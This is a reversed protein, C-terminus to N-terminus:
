RLRTMESVMAALKGIMRKKIQDVNNRSIGFKAAVQEPKEHLLAVHRFVERTSSAISSDSMLQEIATEMAATQWEAEEADPEAAPQAHCSDEKLKTRLETERTKKQLQDAAKHAVIGILYNRFHGKSDPTYHYDPLAKMLAIMTEQLVDDEDVSPYRSRLFGRMTQEYNRFFEAWRANATGSALEKLLSISTVPVSSM